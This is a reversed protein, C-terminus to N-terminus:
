RSFEILRQTIQYALKEKPNMAGDIAMILATFGFLWFFLMWKPKIKM